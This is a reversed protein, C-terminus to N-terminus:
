IGEPINENVVVNRFSEIMYQLILFFFDLMLLCYYNKNYVANDTVIM